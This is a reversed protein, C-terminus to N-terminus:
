MVRGGDVHIVQGTIYSADESAIFTAVKAIDEPLGFRGLPISAMYEDKVEKTLADTMSTQIFGPAIANVTISRSAVEKAISKTFGILGAKSAAYNSQGANGMLGVISAINIIRGWRAKLMPRLVTKTCNFAGKLNILLVNDWDREDMRLLLNDKAIGANNVLIHIVGEKRVIENMASETDKLVGVNFCVAGGFDGLDKLDDEAKNLAKVSVDGIYVRHGAKLFYKAIEFGIGAGGGTILAVRKEM